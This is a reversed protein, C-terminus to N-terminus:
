TSTGKEPSEPHARQPRDDPRDADMRNEIGKIESLMWDFAGLFKDLSGSGALHGLGFSPRKDLAGDPISVSEIMRLRNVLDRRQEPVSFPSRKMHQFQLEVAGYTWVSFLSNKGYKNDYMPFFSGDKEGQGWWIRLGHRKAWELLRRAIAEEQEGRRQRLAEFFSAEEWQRSEGRDASKKQRAAETQGLVRPVLAKLDKGVFQKVEITLVEAPDMQGNLFKRGAV